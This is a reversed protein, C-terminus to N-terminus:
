ARTPLHVTVPLSRPRVSPPLVPIHSRALYQPRAEILTRRTRLATSHHLHLPATCLRPVPLIPPGPRLAPLPHPPPQPTSPPKKLPSPSPPLPPPPTQPPPPHM